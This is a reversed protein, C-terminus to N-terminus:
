AKSARAAPGHRNTEIAHILHDVRARAAADEVEAIVTANGRGPRIFEKYFTGPDIRQEREEASVGDAIRPGLEDEVVVSVRWGESVHLPAIELTAITAIETLDEREADGLHAAKELPIERQERARRASVQFPAAAADCETKVWRVVQEPDIDLPYTDM